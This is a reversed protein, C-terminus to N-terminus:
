RNYTHNMCIWRTHQHLDTYTVILLSSSCNFFVIDETGSSAIFHFIIKVVPSEEFVEISFKFVSFYAIGFIWIPTKKSLLKFTQLGFKERSCTFYIQLYLSSILTGLKVLSRFVVNGSISKASEMAPVRPLSAPRSTSSTRLLHEPCLFLLSFM